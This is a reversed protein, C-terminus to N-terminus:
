FSDYIIQLQAKNAILSDYVTRLGIMTDGEEITSTLEIDSLRDISMQVKQITQAVKEKDNM